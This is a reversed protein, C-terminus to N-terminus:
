APASLLSDAHGPRLFAVSTGRPLVRPGYYALNYRTWAPGVVAVLDGHRYGAGVFLLSGRTDRFQGHQGESAVIHLVSLALVGALAATRTGRPLRAIAVAVVAVMFPVGVAVYRGQLAPHHA